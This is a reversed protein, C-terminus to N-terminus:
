LVEGPPSVISRSVACVLRLCRSLAVRADSESCDGEEVIGLIHEKFLRHSHRCRRFARLSRVPVLVGGDPAPATASLGAGFWLPCLVGLGRETVLYVVDTTLYDITHVQGLTSAAGLFTWAASDLETFPANSRFVRALMEDSGGWQSRYYCVTEGTSVVALARNGV